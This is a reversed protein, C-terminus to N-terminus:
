NNNNLFVNKKEDKEGFILNKCANKLGIGNIKPIMYYNSIILVEKKLIEM